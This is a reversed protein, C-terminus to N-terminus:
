FFKVMNELNQLSIRENIGHVRGADDPKTVIPTMRFVNESIQTYYRADTGGFVLFPAVPINGFVQKITASLTQFAKSDSSSTASAERGSNKLPKVDVQEDAVVRRTHAIVDAVTDGPFLRFNVKASARPALINVKIGGNIMTIATTTRMLANIQPNKTMTTRTMGGFLWQNALAVRVTFPLVPSAAKYIPIITSLNSPMPNAELRTLAKALTGITTHPPPAASHGPASEVSLELTLSGKEATGVLAISSDVGPLMGQMVSGGEDIVAALIIGRELLTDVIQQAGQSGGIEEDHGFALFVTRQPQHGTKLLSEVAELSAIMQNKNDLTGRGWVHNDAIAGSFPAHKWLELTTPDAPVVDQHAALLIPALEPRLGEWTFLMSYENILELKLHNHVLPYNKELIQHLEHFAEAMPPQDDGHSITECQIVEALHAAIDLAEVEILEAAEVSELSSSFRLTRFLMFIILLMIFVILIIAVIFIFLSVAM